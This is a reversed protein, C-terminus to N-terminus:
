KCRAAYRAAREPTWTGAPAGFGKFLLTQAECRDKESAFTQDAWIKQELADLSQAGHDLKMSEGTDLIMFKADDGVDSWEPLTGEVGRGPAGTRAFQVWYSAMARSLKVRGPENDKTNISFPDFESAEDDFVFGVELGHAAGLLRPMDAVLYKPEEDWDFRYSFVPGSQRLVAAPGDVGIARWLENVYRADREFVAEDKIHFGLCRSVYKPNMLMFLKFEDRNTGLLVPVHSGNALGELPAGAPLVHGDRLLAPARYMGFGAGTKKFPGILQEITRGRLYAAIQEPTMAALAKKAADRDEGKGDSMLQALLVEGSSGVDGPEADDTFHSAEVLTRTALMGSQIAARHFLGTALPSSLLAFTDFGGASEGFVTVNGPDGGFAAINSRVWKLAEIQDLTGYNGSADEPNSDAGLLAPHHFWGLVGLRYNVNVVIVGHKLALNRAFGYVNATGITNGGGHIWVMVPRHESTVQEPALAPAYVNLTLCDESGAVDGPQGSAALPGNLQPCLSGYRTAELAGQWPRAPRPAKWRLEGAPPEAYRVGLWAQTGEPETFGTLEGLATHRLTRPDAVGRVETWPHLNRQSACGVLLLSALLLTRM